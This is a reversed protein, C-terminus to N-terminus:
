SFAAGYRLYKLMVDEFLDGYQDELLTCRPGQKRELLDLYQRASQTRGGPADDASLRIVEQTEADVLELAGDLPPQIDEESLVQVVAVEHGSRRLADLGRIIDRGGKVETLLDSLVVVLGRSRGMACFSEM